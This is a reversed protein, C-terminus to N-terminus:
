DPFLQTPDWSRAEPAPAATPRPRTKVRPRPAVRVAEVPTVPSAVVPPAVAPRVERVAPAAPAPAPAAAVPPAITVPPETHARVIALICAFTVVAAGAGLLVLRRSRRTRMPPVSVARVAPVIVSPEDGVTMELTAGPEVLWPEPREGFMSRLYDGLTTAGSQLGLDRALGELALRLEDATQYRDAPKAALAKDIIAALGEPLDPRVQAAPTIVGAVIASMTVYDNEGKFLRRATVLEYLVIGLSFIDSRRDLPEGLCQEPSMYAVKGKLTGTRTETTRGASKAIGFDVVRVGGDRGLLINAPSVDRHVVGLPERDPGRQEHAHHLGAAAAAVIAIVHALPAHQKRAHLQSLLARADEGHVYEMAFFYEGDEQGVDTVQVINAHHLSAALRAEDLFMAIHGPDRAQDARIRKIVVHRSFGEIGVTRALLVDAMGGQALPQLLEYRGLRQTRVEGLAVV